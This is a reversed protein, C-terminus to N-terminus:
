RRGIKSGNDLKIGKRLFFFPCIPKPALAAVDKNQLKFWIMLSFRKFLFLLRQQSLISGEEKRM